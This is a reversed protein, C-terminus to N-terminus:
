RVVGKARNKTLMDQAKKSLWVRLSNIVLLKSKAINIQFDNLIYFDKAVRLTKKLQEKSNALRTTNDAYAIVAQRFWTDMDSIEQDLSKYWDKNIWEIPSYTDKWDNSIQELKTQRKAITAPFPSKNKHSSGNVNSLVRDISVKCFPKELLSQIMRGQKNKIMACRQNVLDEIHKTKEKEIKLMIELGYKENIERVQHNFDAVIDESLSAAKTTKYQCKLSKYIRSLSIIDKKLIVSASNKDFKNSRINNPAGKKLKKHPINKKAAYLIGNEFSD